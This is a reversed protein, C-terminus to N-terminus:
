ETIPSLRRIRDTNPKDHGIWIQARHQRALQKLRAISKLTQDKDSNFKPVFGRDWSIQFHVADGTLIYAGSKPMKVLLSQHGPTHGPTAIITVSGDGFVDYDGDLLMIKQGKAFYPKKANAMPLYEGRQMLITAKSYLTLNGAHDGHRHSIAVRGINNPKVGLAKLQAALTKDRFLLINGRAASLGRKLEAVRDPVGTEWLFYGRRHEILFCSNAIEVSKGVNYGPTWLSHDKGIARGCDLIIMRKITTAQAPFSVSTLLGSLVIAFVLRYIM